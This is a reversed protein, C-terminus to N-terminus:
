TASLQQKLFQIEEDTDRALANPLVAPAAAATSEGQKAFLVLFFGQAQDSTKLPRVEMTVIEGEGETEIKQPTCMTPEDRQKARFLATRLESQLGPNVVKVINATPEGGVFHL